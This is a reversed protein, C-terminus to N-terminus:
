DRSYIGVYNAQGIVHTNMATIVDNKQSGEPLLLYNDLAYVTFLYHHIREPPCPGGYTNKGFGNKGTVAGAPMSNEPIVTTDPAINWVLWHVWTGSPTDKDDILIVLSKATKPTNIIRIEPSINVGDCTYKATINGDSIFAPINIKFSKDSQAPDSIKEPNIKLYNKYIYNGTIFAICVVGLFLLIKTFIKM